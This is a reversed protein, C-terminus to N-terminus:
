GHDGGADVGVAPGDGAGVLSAFADDLSDAGTEERLTAPTGTRLAHRHVLGVRDAHRDVAALDHSAVLVAAGAAALDTVAAFVHRTVEPDLGSTPEDLVYVPPDGVTAVALGLLRVMGGSLAGTSRDAVDALGVRALAADPDADADAPLLDAHFAVTERATFGPRFTPAQPLYGVARHGAVRRDVDGADPSALGAAVRLLTTKGSGNPGVLATVAGAPVALSVGDLVTLDGYGVTVSSVSLPPDSM